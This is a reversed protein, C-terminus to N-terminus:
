LEGGTRSVDAWDVTVSSELDQRCVITYPVDHPEMARVWAVVAYIQQLRSIDNPCNFAAAVTLVFSEDDQDKPNIYGVTICNLNSSAQLSLLWAILTETDGTCHWEHNSKEYGHSFEWQLEGNGAMFLAANLEDDRMTQMLPFVNSAKQQARRKKEGLLLDEWEGNTMNALNEKEQGLATHMYGAILHSVDDSTAQQENPTAAHISKTM